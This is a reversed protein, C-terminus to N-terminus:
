DGKEIESLRQILRMQGDLGLRRYREILEIEQPSLGDAPVTERNSEGVLDAVSCGFIEALKKLTEPNPSSKGLEYKSYSNQAM